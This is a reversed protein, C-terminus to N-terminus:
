WSMLAQLVAEQEVEEDPVVEYLHAWSADVWGVSGDSWLISVKDGYLTGHQKNVIVGLWTRGFRMISDTKVMTGRPLKLFEDKTM